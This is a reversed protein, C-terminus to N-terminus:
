KKENEKKEKSEKKTTITSSFVRSSQKLLTEPFTFVTTDFFFVLAISGRKSRKKEKGLKIM